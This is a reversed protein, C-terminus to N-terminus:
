KWPVVNTSSAAARGRGQMARHDRASSSEEQDHFGACIANVRIGLAACDLARARRDRAQLDVKFVRFRRLYNSSMLFDSVIEAVIRKPKGTFQQICIADCFRLLSPANQSLSNEPRRLDNIRFPSIDSHDISCAQFDVRAARASACWIGGLCKQDLLKRLM